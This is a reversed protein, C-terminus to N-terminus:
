APAITAEASFASANRGTDWGRIKYRTAGRVRHFDRFQTLRTFGIRTGDRFVDYRSVGMDDSAAVWKLVVIDGGATLTLAPKGPRRVIISVQEALTASVSDSGASISRQHDVPKSDCM